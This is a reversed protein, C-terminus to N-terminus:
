AAEKASRKAAERLSAAASMKVRAEHSMKRGKRAASMKRRTEESAPRGPKGTLAKAVNTIHEPTKQRGTLTASIRRKMEESMPGFKIGRNSGAIKAINYQPKLNDIWFQERQICSDPLTLEIIEFIFTQEGYKKWAKQLHDNRHKNHRLDFKHSNWRKRISTSASGVYINGNVLNTIKYIGTDM